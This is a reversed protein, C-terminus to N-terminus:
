VKIQTLGSHYFGSDTDWLPWFRVKHWSLNTLVKVQIPESHDVVDGLQWYRRRYWSLTTLVRKQILESLDVADDIDAISLFTFTLTPLAVIVLRLGEWVGLPLPFLCFWVLAFPVLMRFASLNAREEGFSTIAISFSDTTIDTDTITTMVKM